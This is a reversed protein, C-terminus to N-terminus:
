ESLYYDIVLQPSKYNISGFRLANFEDAAPQTLNTGYFQMTWTGKAPVLKFNTFRATKGSWTEERSQGNPATIVLRSPLVLGMFNKNNNNVVPTGPIIKISDVVANSPLTSFRVNVVNSWGSTGPNLALGMASSATQTAPGTAYTSTIEADVIMTYIEKTTDETEAAFASTSLLSFVMLVALTLSFLRKKM